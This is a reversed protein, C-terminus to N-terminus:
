RRYVSGGYDPARSAQNGLWLLQPLKGLLIYEIGGHLATEIYDPRPQPANKQYFFEGHIGHPWRIVTLLRNHCYKLLFPALVALKRLYLAKTIGAEPWLPKDPNTIPIERGEITITGKVAQGM